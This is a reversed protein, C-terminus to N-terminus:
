FVILVKEKRDEFKVYLCFDKIPKVEVHNSEINNM